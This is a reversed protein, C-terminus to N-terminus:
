VRIGMPSNRQQVIRYRLWALLHLGGGVPRRPLGQAGTRCPCHRTATTADCTSCTDIV